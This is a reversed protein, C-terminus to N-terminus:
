SERRVAENCMGQMKLHKLAFGLSFPEMRVEKNCAEQTGPVYKLMHLLVTCTGDIIYWFANKFLGIMKNM